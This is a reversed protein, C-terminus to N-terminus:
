MVSLSTWPSGSFRSLQHLQNFQLSRATLPLVSKTNVHDIRSKHMHICYMYNTSYSVLPQPNKLHTFHSHTAHQLSHCDAYFRTGQSSIVPKSTVTTFQLSARYIMQGLFAKLLAPANSSSSTLMCATNLMALSLWSLTTQQYIQRNSPLTKQVAGNRM